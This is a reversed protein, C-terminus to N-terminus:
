MTQRKFSNQFSSFTAIAFAYQFKLGGSGRWDKEAKIAVIYHGHVCHLTNREARLYNEGLEVKSKDAGSDYPKQHQYTIDGQSRSRQGASRSLEHHM